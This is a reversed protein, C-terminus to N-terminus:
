ISPFAIEKTFNKVVKGAGWLLGSNAIFNGHALSDASAQAHKVQSDWKNKLFAFKVRENDDHWIFRLFTPEEIYIEKLGIAKARDIIDGDEHGWGSNLREDYGGLKYFDAKKFALRGFVEGTPTDLGRLFSDSQTAFASLLYETFGRGIYNDADVNCLITGRALRHALNKAHAHHFYAAGDYRYYSLVGHAIENHLRQRVWDDCFDPSSYNLLVFEVPQGEAAAINEPLTSKLHELRGMCTTCFSVIEGTELFTDKENTQINKMSKVISLILIKKCAM